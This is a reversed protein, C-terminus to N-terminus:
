VWAKTFKAYNYEDWVKLPTKDNLLPRIARDLQAVSERAIQMFAVYRRAPETAYSCGYRDAIAKDWLPFYKPAMLHLAKAVAVPSRRAGRGSSEVRLAELAAGFLAVVLPEDTSSLSRIDRARLDELLAAEGALFAELLDWDPAGYRYAAQNWTLLLVGVADALERPQGWFQRVLYTAVQYMADRKEHHRYALVGRRFQAPTPGPQTM